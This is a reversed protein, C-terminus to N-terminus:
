AHQLRRRRLMAGGAGFGLIMLAWSAPEPVGTVSVNDIGFREDDLGQTSAGIFSLTTV